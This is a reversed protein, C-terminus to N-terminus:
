SFWRLFFFLTLSALWSGVAKFAGLLDDGGLQPIGFYILYSSVIFYLKTATLYIGGRGIERAEQRSTEGTGQTKPSGSDLESM